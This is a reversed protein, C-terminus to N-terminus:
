SDKEDDWYEVIANLDLFIKMERKEVPGGPAAGVFLGVKTSDPYIVVDPEIMTSFCLYELPTGSTNVLQHAANEDPLLAIYDGASILIEEEGLRLTGSGKLVYIAEENAAHYHRPWSRKGPPLKMLSCGLKRSAAAAGLKKRSFASRGDPSAETVWDLEEINILHASRPELKDIGM